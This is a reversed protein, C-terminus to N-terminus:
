REGFAVAVANQGYRLVQRGPQLLASNREALAVQAFILNSDGDSGALL